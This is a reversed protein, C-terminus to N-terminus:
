FKAYQDRKANLWGEPPMYFLHGRGKFTELRTNEAVLKSIGFDGIKLISGDMLINDPKVDRHVIKENIAKMGEAIQLMM